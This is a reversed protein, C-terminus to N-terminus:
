KKFYFYTALGYMFMFGPVGLLGVTLATFANAGVNIHLGIKQLLLNVIFIGGLGAFIRIAFNIILEFNHKAVGIIILAVCIIIIVVFIKSEMTREMEAQKKRM